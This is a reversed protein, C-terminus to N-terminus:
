DIILLNTSYIAQFGLSALALLSSWTIRVFSPDALVCPSLCLDNLDYVEQVFLRLHSLTLM